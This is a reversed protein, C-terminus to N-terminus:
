YILPGRIVSSTGRSYGPRMSIRPITKALHRRRTVNQTVDRRFLACFFAVPCLRDLVIAFGFDILRNPKASKPTIENAIEFDAKLVGV